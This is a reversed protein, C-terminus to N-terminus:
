KTTLKIINGSPINKSMLSCQKLTEKWEIPISSRIQIMDLLSARIDYKENLTIYDLFQCNNNLIDKLYIIGKIM